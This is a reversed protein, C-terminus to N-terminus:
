FSSKIWCCHPNPIVPIGGGWQVWKSKRNQRLLEIRSLVENRHIKRVLNEQFQHFILFFFIWFKSVLLKSWFNIFLFNNKMKSSDRYNQILIKDFNLLKLVDLIEARSYKAYISM